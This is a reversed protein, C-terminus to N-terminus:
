ASKSRFVYSYFRGRFPAIQGSQIPHQLSNGNSDRLVFQPDIPGLESSDSMVIWDAGIALLTGASKAFDPVVVRFEAEGVAARLLESLKEAADIDGGGTHLLLDIPEGPRANHLLDVLGVIDDRVIGAESGAVYCVLQRATADEIQTILAQRQYRAAQTAQYLPTKSPPTALAGLDRGTDGVGDRSDNSPESTETM